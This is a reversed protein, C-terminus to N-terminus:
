TSVTIATSSSSPTTRCTARAAWCRRRPHAMLMSALTSAAAAVVLAQVRLWLQVVRVLLRWGRRQAARGDGAGGAFCVRAQMALKNGELAWESPWSKVLETSVDLLAGAEADGAVARDHLTAAHLCLAFSGEAYAKQLLLM